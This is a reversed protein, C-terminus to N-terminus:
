LSLIVIYAVTIVKTQTNDVRNWLIKKLIIISYFLIYLLKSRHIKEHLVGETILFNIVREVLLLASYHLCGNKLKVPFTRARMFLTILLVHGLWLIQIDIKLAWINFDVKTFCHILLLAAYHLVLLNVAKFVHKLQWSFHCFVIHILHYISNHKFVLLYAFINLNTTLSNLSCKTFMFQDMNDINRLFYKILRCNSLLPEKWNYIRGHRM